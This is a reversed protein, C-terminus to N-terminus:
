AHPRTATLEDFLKLLSENAFAPRYADSLIEVRLEAAQRALRKKKGHGLIRSKFVLELIQSQISWYIFVGRLRGAEPDGAKIRNRIEVNMVRSFTGWEISFRSLGDRKARLFAADIEDLYTRASKPIKMAM